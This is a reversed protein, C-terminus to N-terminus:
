NTLNRFWDFVKDTTTCSIEQKPESGKVFPLPIANGCEDQSGVGTESDVWNITINKPPINQLPQQARAKFIDAWVRLAGSSGTLGTSKNDDRGLWVVAQMDDSFGAFWSDRLNNTTGTKGAVAFDPMLWQLAKASGEHTVAQLAHRLIYISSASFRKEIDIPYSTLVEGNPDVVARIALLPTYFGGSSITQYMQAVELPSLEAAGLTIAPLAPIDADVGLRKITSLINELGLENGLRATAQNYSRALAKYLLVDGHDKLDYNKPSWSKGNALKQQYAADSIKTALTYKDSQELATLYVAPKMLSGIQRRADIARNFGAYQTDSGGVIATVAGTNPQSIVVAGQLNANADSKKQKTMMKVLSSEATEQILPDFHTFISLGDSSLDEAKYDNQLQRRVLDLYAPYRKNSGANREGVGLPTKKAEEAQSADLYNEQVAIDLILNRRKLAREPNRWPNYYSAGRVLAVLLAQQSLSLDNLSKKFYYQSALGFGHIARPGDQGLYIENIYGELIDAKSAHLELLMAMLAEQAKRILTREPTLYYNKILQQTLTSAGQSLEGKKINAIMARGIGRLSIGAHNYFDKDEVAVLMEQLSVPVDSLQVLLRDENHSPYIGGIVLPQLRVLPKNDKSELTSIIGNNLTIKIKQAPALEDSFQFKPIFITAQNQGIFAQGPQKVDGVFDYGLLTMEKKLDTLSLPLGEYIELPRAYVTSAVSWQKDKFTSNVISDLYFLIGIAIAILILLPTMWRKTVFKPIM